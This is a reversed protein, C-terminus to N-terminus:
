CVLALYRGRPQAYMTGLHHESQLRLSRSGNRLDCHYQFYAHECDANRPTNGPHNWTKNRSGFVGWSCGGPPVELFPPKADRPSNRPTLEM